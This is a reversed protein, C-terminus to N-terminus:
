TTGEQKNAYYKEQLARIKAKDATIEAVAKDASKIDLVSHADAAALIGKYPNDDALRALVIRTLADVQTELYTISAYIDTENILRRKMRYVRFIEAFAPSNKVLTGMYSETKYDITINEVGAVDDCRQSPLIWCEDDGVFFRAIKLADDGRLNWTSYQYPAFKDMLSWVLVKNQRNDNALVLDYAKGRYEDYNIRIEHTASAYGCNEHNAITFDLTFGTDDAGISYGCRPASENQERPMHIVKVFMM